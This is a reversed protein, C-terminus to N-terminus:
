FNVNKGRLKQQLFTNELKERHRPGVTREVILKVPIELPRTYVMSNEIDISDYYSEIHEVSSIDFSMACINEGRLATADSRFIPHVFLSFSPSFFTDDKRTPAAYCLGRSLDLLLAASACVLRRAYTLM